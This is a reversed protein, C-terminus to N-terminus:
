AHLGYMLFIFRPFRSQLRMREAPYHFDARHLNYTGLLANHLVLAQGVYEEGCNCRRHKHAENLRRLTHM